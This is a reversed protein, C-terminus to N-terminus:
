PRVARRRGRPEPIGLGRAARNPQRRRCNRAYSSARRPNLGNNALRKELTASPRVVVMNRRSPTAIKSGTSALRLAAPVNCILRPLYCQHPGCPHRRPCDVHKRLPHRPCSVMTRLLKKLTVSPRVVVMNRRSATRNEVGYVGLAAGGSRWRARGHRHPAPRSVRSAAGYRAQPQPVPGPRFLPVNLPQKCADAACLQLFGAVSALPRSRQARPRAGWTLLRAISTIRGFV